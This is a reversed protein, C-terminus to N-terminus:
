MAGVNSRAYEEHFGERSNEDIDRNLQMRRGTCGRMARRHCMGRCHLHSVNDGIYRLPGPSNM